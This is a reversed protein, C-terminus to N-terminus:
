NALIVKFESLDLLTILGDGNIDCSEVIVTEDDVNALCSKMLSLDLLSILGDGNIDGALFYGYRVAAGCTKCKQVRFGEKLTHIDSKILAEWERGVTHGTAPIIEESIVAGCDVCCVALIGDETCSQEAIVEADGPTHDKKPIVLEDVPAGCKSCVFSIRGAARCTAEEIIPATMDPTHGTAPVVDSKEVFGCLECLRTTEGDETCTAEKTVADTFSHAGVPAVTETRLTKGCYLCVVEAEGGTLCDPMEKYGGEVCLCVFEFSGISAYREAETGGHGYVTFGDKAIPTLYNKDSVYGFAFNGIYGVTDPITVSELASDNYFAFDLIAEVTEPISVSSLKTSATVMNASVVRAGDPIVLAAPVTGKPALTFGSVCNVGNPLAKYFASAGLATADFYEVTEPMSFTRLSACSAFASAGIYKVSDPLAASAVATTYFAYDEIKKLGASFVVSKLNRSMSFASAGIREVSNAMVVSVLKQNNSFCRNGIETIGDEIVVNVAYANSYWPAGSASSYDPLAGTGSVTLTKSTADITVTITDGVYFTKDGAAALAGFSSASIIIIACLLASLLKKM